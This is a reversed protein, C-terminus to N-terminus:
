SQRCQRSYLHRWWVNDLILFPADDAHPVVHLNPRARKPHELTEPVSPCCLVDLGLFGLAASDGYSWIGVCYNLSMSLLPFCLMVMDSM